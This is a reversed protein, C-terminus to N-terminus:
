RRLDRVLREEEVRWYGHEKGDLLIVPVRDWYEALMTADSDVDVERWAVGTSEAVRAVAQKAVECLHCDARTVLTIRATTLRAALDRV